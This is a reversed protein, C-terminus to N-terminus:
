ARDRAARRGVFRVGLRRLLREGRATMSRARARVADDIATKFPSQPGSPQGVGAELPPVTWCLDIRRARLMAVAKRTSQPDTPPLAWVRVVRARPKEAVLRALVQALLAETRAHEGDVRPPSEIGFAALYHRLSQERPSRAFATRPAFPARAILHECRAALADLDGKPLDGLGQPDLPRAHEAVRQAVEAEDLESRDADVCSAAGALASAILAGHGAGRGPAIWARLRSAVVVLGVQDGRSLGGMARHAVQEIVRDLPAEGPSGALLEVSAEVVLWVVDRDDREMERVLLRGRRASAKWAIRRFPDGPAHDRLERVEDGEGVLAAPRGTESARRARGGRPSHAMTTFSRPLVEVGLPSAFLLPAEFLGDGGLTTGRVELALGHVGWRGVRGARVAVVVEGHGGARLDISSPQCTAELMASVIPRIGVCRVANNSRNRLEARLTLTAGSGTRHARSEGAWIMEFGAERLHIVSATAIARGVAVALLMAGGFGIVAPLRAVAGLAILGAGAAAVHLTPRTPYLHM